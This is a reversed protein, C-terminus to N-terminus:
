PTIVNAAERTVTTTFAWDSAADNTDKGNPNRILSGAVTNSDEVSAALARLETSERCL